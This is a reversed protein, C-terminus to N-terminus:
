SFVEGVQLKKLLKLNPQMNREQKKHFKEMIKDFAERQSLPNITSNYDHGYKKLLRLERDLKSRETFITFTGKKLNHKLGGM